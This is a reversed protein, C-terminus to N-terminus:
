GFREGNHSDRSYFTGTTFRGRSQLAVELHYRILVMGLCGSHHHLNRYACTVSPFRQSHLPRLSQSHLSILMPLSEVAVDFDTINYMSIDVDVPPVNKMLTENTTFYDAASFIQLLLTSSLPPPNSGISHEQLQHVRPRREEIAPNSSQRSESYLALSSILPPTEFVEKLTYPFLWFQTPQQSIMAFDTSSVNQLPQLLTRM